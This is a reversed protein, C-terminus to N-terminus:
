RTAEPVEVLAHIQRQRHALEEDMRRCIVLVYHVDGASFPWLTVDAPYENGAADCISLDIGSGMPRSSPYKFYNRTQVAHRERQAAPVLMHIPQGDINQRRYGLSKLGISNAAVIRDQMDVIFLMDPHSDFLAHLMAPVM